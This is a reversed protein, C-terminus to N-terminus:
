EVEGEAPPMPQHGYRAVARLGALWCAENSRMSSDQYAKWYASKLEEDTPGAVEGEAPVPAPRGWRALVARAADEFGGQDMFECGRCCDHYILALEEDSPEGVVSAPERGEPVAPGDPAALADRAALLPPVGRIPDTNNNNNNISMHELEIDVLEPVPRVHIVQVNPHLERWMRVADDGSAAAVREDRTRCADIRVTLWWYTPSTPPTPM